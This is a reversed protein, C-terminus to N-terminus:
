VRKDVRMEIDTKVENLEQWKKKLRKEAETKIYRIQRVPIKINRFAFEIANADLKPNAPTSREMKYLDPTECVKQIVADIDPVEKIAKIESQRVDNAFSALMNPKVSEEYNQYRTLLKDPPKGLIFRDLKVKNGAFRVIPKKYYYKQRITSYYAEYPLITTFDNSYRSVAYHAHFMRRVRADVFDKIPAVFFVIPHLYGFMQMTKTLAKLWREYWDTSSMSIGAEDVQIVAGDIKEKAITELVDIFDRPEQILRNEYYKWFTPDLLYGFTTAAVSKGSRHRGDFSALYTLGVSRIQRRLSSLYALAIINNYNFGPINDVARASKDAVFFTGPWDM